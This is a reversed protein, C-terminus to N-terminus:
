LLVGFYFGDGDLQLLEHLTPRVGRDAASAGTPGTKTAAISSLPAPAEAQWSECNLTKMVMPPGALGM